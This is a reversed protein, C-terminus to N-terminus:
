DLRRATSSPVPDRACGPLALAGAARRDLQQPLSREKLLRDLFAAVDADRLAGRHTVDFGHVLSAQAQAMPALQSAVSITEDSSVGFSSWSRRFSFLLYHRTGEPLKRSVGRHDVFLSKLYASGAAIDRWSSVVVPSWRVGVAASAVGGWPTSLTIVVPIQVDLRHSHNLLFDRVVLGGVSHAVINLTRVGHNRHLEAIAAALSSASESLSSESAYSFMCPQFRRRDLSAILFRFDRPSGKMGHVFLVPTRGDFRPDVFCMDDIALEPLASPALSALTSRRPAHRDDVLSRSSCGSMAAIAIVSAALLLRGKMGSMFRAVRIARQAGHDAAARLVSM